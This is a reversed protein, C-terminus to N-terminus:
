YLFGKGLGWFNFVDGWALRGISLQGCSLICIGWNVVIIYLWCNHRLLYICCLGWLRRGGGGLRRRATMDPPHTAEFSIAFQRQGHSKGREIRGRRREVPWPGERHGGEVWPGRIAAGVASQGRARATVAETAGGGGGALIKRLFKAKKDSNWLVMKRQATAM